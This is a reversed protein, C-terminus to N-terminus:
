QNKGRGFHKVSKHLNLMLYYRNSIKQRHNGSNLDETREFDNHSFSQLYFTFHSIKFLDSIIGTGKYANESLLTDYRCIEPSM